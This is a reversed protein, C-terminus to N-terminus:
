MCMWSCRILATKHINHRDERYVSQKSNIIKVLSKENIANQHHFNEQLVTQTM